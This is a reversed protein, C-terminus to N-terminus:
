PTSIRESSASTESTADVAGTGFRESVIYSPRRMSETHIRSVYAGIFGLIVSISGIGSGLLAALWWAASAAGTATLVIATILMAVSFAMFLGAVVFGLKLPADSFGLLGSTALRVLRGFDYKPEGAVRAKRDYEVPEQTFGVYSRLGRVFREHEPLANIHNVVRRSMAAFDGADMPIEISSSAKLLRYFSWYAMRKAPGEKRNRRVGYAVDVGAQVRRVLELGASPPDQLDADMILVVEGRSAELGATVAPQHGFNRSFIVGRYRADTSVQAAILDRTSDTSGDDVLIIEYDVMGADVLSKELASRLQEFVDEENFLPIIVSLRPM